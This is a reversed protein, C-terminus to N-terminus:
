VLHQCASYVVTTNQQINLDHINVGLKINSDLTFGYIEVDVIM